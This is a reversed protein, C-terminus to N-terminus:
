ELAHGVGPGESQLPAGLAATVREGVLLDSADPVSGVLGAGDVRGQDLAQQERWLADLVHAAGLPLVDVDVVAPREQLDLGVAVLGIRRVLDRQRRRDEGEQRRDALRPAPPQEAAVAMALEPRPGVPLGLEVDRRTDTRRGLAGGFVSVLEVAASPLEM